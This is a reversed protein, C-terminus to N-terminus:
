PSPAMLGAAVLAASIDAPTESYAAPTEVAAIVPALTTIAATDVPVGNDEFGNVSNVPGSFTTKAM